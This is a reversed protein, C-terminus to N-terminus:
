VFSAALSERRRSNLLRSEEAEFSSDDRAGNGKMNLKGTGALAIVKSALKLLPVADFQM